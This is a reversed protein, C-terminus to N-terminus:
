CHTNLSIAWTSFFTNHNSANILQCKPTVQPHLIIADSNKFPQFDRCQVLMPINHPTHPRSETQSALHAVNSILFSVPLYYNDWPNRLMTMWKESWCNFAVFDQIWSMIEHYGVLLQFPSKALSFPTILANSKGIEKTCHCVCTQLLRKPLTHTYLM